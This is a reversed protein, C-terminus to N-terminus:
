SGFRRELDRALRAADRTLVKRAARAADTCQRYTTAYDSFGHNYAGTMKERAGSNDGESEVLTEMRILWPNPTTTPSCIQTLFALGGMAESLELLPREQANAPPLLPKPAPTVAETTPKKRQVPRARQPQQQAIAADAVLMLALGALFGRHRATM